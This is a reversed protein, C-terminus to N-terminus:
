CLLLLFSNVSHLYDLKSPTLWHEQIFIIDSFVCLDQLYSWSTNFGHMNFTALTVSQSGNALSTNCAM